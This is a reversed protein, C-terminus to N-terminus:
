RDRALGFWLLSALIGLSAAVAIVGSTKWDPSLAAVAASAVAASLLQVVGLIASAVGAGEKRDGIALHQLNPALIGRCFFVALLCPLLPAPTDPAAAALWLAGACGLASAAFAADVARVAEVNRRALWGNTWAGAALTSATAAFLAAYAEPSFGMRAIVVVPSGAIYAFLSAYSAANVAAIRLFPREEHLWRSLGTRREKPPPAVAPRPVRSEPVWAVTVALLAAGALMLTGHTARWGGVGILQVGIAPAVMPMIAFVVAVYSRKSRARQGAFLDQIMAFALVSCSGAGIGQLLRFAVLQGASQAAACLGAAATFLLLSTTLVPRRGRRDSQHGGLLQGAAFGAMFLSLTAGAAAETTALAAPLLVLTPASVDISLAPLAALLGLVLTFGISEPPIRM